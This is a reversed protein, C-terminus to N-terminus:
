SGSLKRSQFNECPLQGRREKKERTWERREKEVSARTISVSAKTLEITTKMMKTQNRAKAIRTRAKDMDNSIILGKFKHNFRRATMGHKVQAQGTSSVPSDLTKLGNYM